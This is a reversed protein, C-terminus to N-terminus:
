KMLSLTVLRYNIPANTAKKVPKKGKQEVTTVTHVTLHVRQIKTVILKTGHHLLYEREGVNTSIPDIYAGYRGKPLNIKLVVHQKSRSFGLAIMQSLTTSSYAPDHYQGGVKVSQSGLSKTLGTPTTGRFVTLPQKLQYQDIARNIQKISTKVKSTARKHPNRLTDNIKGYGNNTYYRIAKVQRNTLKKAWRDASLRLAKMEKSNLKATKTSYILKAPHSIVLTAKSHPMSVLYGNDEALKKQVILPTNKPVAVIKQPDPEENAIAHLKVPIRTLFVRKGVNSTHIINSTVITTTTNGQVEKKILKAQVPSPLSVAVLLIVVFVFHKVKIRM